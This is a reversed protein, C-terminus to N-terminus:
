KGVGFVISQYSRFKRSADIEVKLKDNIFGSFWNNLGMMKISKFNELMIQISAVRSEVKSNWDKQAVKVRGALFYSM